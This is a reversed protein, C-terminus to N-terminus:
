SKPPRASCASCSGANPNGCTQGPDGVEAAGSITVAKCHSLVAEQSEVKQLIILEPKKWKKMM